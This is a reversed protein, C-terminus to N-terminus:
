EKATLIKLCTSRESPYVQKYPTLVNKTPRLACPSLSLKIFIARSAFPFISPIKKTSNDFIISFSSAYVLNISVLPTTRSVQLITIANFKYCNKKRIKIRIKVSQQFTIKYPVINGMVDRLYRNFIITIIITDILKM